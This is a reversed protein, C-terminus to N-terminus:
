QKSTAFFCPSFLFIIISYCTLCMADEVILESVMTLYEKKKQKTKKKKKLTYSSNLLDGFDQGFNQLATATLNERWDCM